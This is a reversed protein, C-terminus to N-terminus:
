RGRTSAPPWPEVPLAAWPTSGSRSAVYLATGLAFSLGNYLHYLVHIPFVRLAFWCGRTRYFFRYYHWGLAGLAAFSLAVVGLFRADLAALALAAVALYAVVVSIRYVRRVNLDDNMAGYRHLLQTWPVGRDRIDSVVMSALTWRKLHSAKVSSDLVVRYGAATLRYGFDIDEVSPRRFREDFGHVALFASRRVAGFGAWFTRADSASSHHVYAHALNKYQSVFGPDAPRDDYAGFVASVDPQEDLVRVIRDLSGSGAVVDADIFVLIDGAAARAAANRAAAPGKPGQLDIVRASCSAALAHCDDVAGDAAIIVESAAPRTELAALCRALSGLGRHFPVIISLSPPM